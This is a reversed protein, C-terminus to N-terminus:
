VCSTEPTIEVQTMVTGTKNCRLTIQVHLAYRNQKSFLDRKKFFDWGYSRVNILIINFHIKRFNILTIQMLYTLDPDLLHTKIISRTYFYDHIMFDGSNM